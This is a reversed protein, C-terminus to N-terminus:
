QQVAKIWESFADSVFRGKDVPTIMELQWVGRGLLQVFVGEIQYTVGWAAARAAYSTEGFRGPQVSCTRAAAALDKMAGGHWAARLAVTFDGPPSMTLAQSPQPLGAACPWPAGPEVVWGDVTPLNFSAAAWNAQVGRVVEATLLPSVDLAALSAHLLSRNAAVTDASGNYRAVVKERGLDVIMYVLKTRDGNVDSGTAHGALM